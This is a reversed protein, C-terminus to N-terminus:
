GKTDLHARSRQFFLICLAEHDDVTEEQTSLCERTQIEWDKSMM